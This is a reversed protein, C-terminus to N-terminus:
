KDPVFAQLKGDQIQVLTGLTKEVTIRGLIVFKNEKGSPYREVFTKDDVRLWIRKGPEPEFTYDWYFFNPINVRLHDKTTPEVEQATASAAFALIAAILLLQRVM